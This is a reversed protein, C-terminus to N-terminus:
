VWLIDNICVLVIVSGIFFDSMLLIKHDSVVNNIVFSQTRNKSISKIYNLKSFKITYCKFNSILIMDNIM